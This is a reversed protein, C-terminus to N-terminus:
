EGGITDAAKPPLGQNRWTCVTHNGRHINDDAYYVKFIPRLHLTELWQEFDSGEDILWSATLGDVKSM